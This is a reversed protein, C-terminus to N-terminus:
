ETGGSYPAAASCQHGAYLLSNACPSSLLPWFDGLVMNVINISLMFFLVMGLAMLNMPLYGVPNFRVDISSGEYTKQFTGEMLVPIGNRPGVM